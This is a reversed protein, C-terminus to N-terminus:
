PLTVISHHSQQLASQCWLFNDQTNRKLLFAISFGGCANPNSSLKWGWRVICRESFSRIRNRICGCFIANIIVTRYFAVFALGFITNKASLLACGTNKAPSATGQLIPTQKVQHSIQNMWKDKYTDPHRAPTWEAINGQNSEMLYICQM